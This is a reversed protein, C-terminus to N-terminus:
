PTISTIVGNVSDILAQGDSASIRRSNVWARVQNTLSHLQNTAATTNGGALQALAADLKATASSIQVGTLSPVAAITDGVAAITEQPTALSIKTVFADTSGANVPQVVGPTTPFNTSSTMGVVYVNGSGDM